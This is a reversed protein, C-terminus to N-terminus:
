AFPPPPMSDYLSDVGLRNAAETRSRVVILARRDDRIMKAYLTLLSLGVTDDVIALIDGREGWERHRREQKIVRDLHDLGFDLGDMQSADWVATFDREWRDDTALADAGAVVDDGSGRGFLRVVGYHAEPFVTVDFAM